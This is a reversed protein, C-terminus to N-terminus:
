FDLSFGVSGDFMQIGKQADEISGYMVNGHGRSRGDPGLTVDARTINGARRFLDKLDQWQIQFPLQMSPSVSLKLSEERFLYLIFTFFVYTGSLSSRAQSARYLRDPRRRDKIRRSRLTSSSSIRILSNARSSQRLHYSDSILRHHLERSGM